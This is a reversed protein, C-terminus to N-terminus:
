WITVRVDDGRYMPIVRSSGSRAYFEPINALPGNV